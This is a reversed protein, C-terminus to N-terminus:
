GLSVAAEVVFPHGEYAAPKDRATAILDPELVKHIGLNLNYEGLPSLCSGDPAKFLQVQRFLQVLRTIQRDNLDRPAMSESLGVTTALEAILRKALAPSVASLEKCLFQVLTKCKTFQILQQIIINNVSAPHHKVTTPTPPMQESRRDYQLFMSRKADSENTYQMQLAAYPTIIALQQLYQVIRSKYTTWNGAILVQVETGVFKDQSTNSDSTHEL